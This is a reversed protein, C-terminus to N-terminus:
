RNLAWTAGPFLEDFPVAGPLFFANSLSVGTDDLYFIAFGVSQGVPDWVITHLEFWGPSGCGERCDVTHFPLVTASSGSFAISGPRSGGLDIERAGPPATVSFGCTLAVNRLSHAPIDLPFAQFDGTPSCTGEVTELVGLDSDTMEGEFNTLRGDETCDLWFPYWTGDEIGLGSYVMRQLAPYPVRQYIFAPIPGRGEFAITGKNDVITVALGPPGSTMQASFRDVIPAVTTSTAPVAIETDFHVEQCLPVRRCAALTAGCTSAAVLVWCTSARV